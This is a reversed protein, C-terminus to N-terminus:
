LVAESRPFATMFDSTNTRKELLCRLSRSGEKCEPEPKKEEKPEEPESAFSEANIIPAAPEEKKEERVTDQGSSIM